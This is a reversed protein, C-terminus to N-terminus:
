PVAAASITIVGKGPMAARLPEGTRVTVPAPLGGSGEAVAWSVSYAGAPLGRVSIEGPAAAMAVVAYSGDPNIFAVPDFAVEDTSEAAIRLAGPRIYRMYQRNYRADENLVVSGDAEVRTHGLIGRYQWAVVNGVKLDLHLQDYTGKGQWYELMATDLGFQAARAAIAQLNEIRRGGYRHFSLEIMAEVAGPVKAIADFWPVAAQMGLTSPAIFAPSFGNERLRRAAAVIAPGLMSRKWAGGLEKNDPELIVEWADPVLGWRDRMHLYVALVFEAYEEPDTHAEYRGERISRTFAVYNLNLFLREGRAELRRKVPLVRNEIQWDISDFHFGSWNISRPDGNDNVVAYRRGAWAEATIAGRQYLAFSPDTSEVGSPVGVRLRTIGAEDVVMDLIRDLEPVTERSQAFGATAEWGRITQYSRTPDLSVIVPAAGAAAAALCAALALLAAGGTRAASRREDPGPMATHVSM